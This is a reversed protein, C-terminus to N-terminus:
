FCLYELPNLFLFQLSYIFYFIINRRLLLSLVQLLKGGSGILINEQLRVHSCKRRSAIFEPPLCSQDGGIGECLSVYRLVGSLKPGGARKTSGTIQLPLFARMQTKVTANIIRSHPMSPDDKRPVSRTTQPFESDLYDLKVSNPLASFYPELLGTSAM